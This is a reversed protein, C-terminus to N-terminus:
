AKGHKASSILPHLHPCRGITRVEPDREFIEYPIGANDLLIALYLAGIGAGIIVVSPIPRDTNLSHSPHTTM